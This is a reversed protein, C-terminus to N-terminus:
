GGMGPQAPAPAEAEPIANIADKLEQQKQAEQASGPYPVQESTIAIGKQALYSSYGQNSDILQQFQQPDAKIPNGAKDKILSGNDDAMFLTSDKSIMNHEALWANFLKDFSSVEAKEMTEGDVSYGRLFRSDDSIAIAFQVDQGDATYGLVDNVADKAFNQQMNKFDSVQAQEGAWPQATSNLRFATYQAFEEVKLMIDQYKDLVRADTFKERVRQALYQAAEVSTQAVAMADLLSEKSPLVAAKAM